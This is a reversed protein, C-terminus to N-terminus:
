LLVVQRTEEELRKRAMEFYEPSLEFGIGERHLRHCAVLTSGSGVFPDLVLDGPNSLARLIYELLGVIKQTPHSTREEKLMGPKNSYRLVSRPFREGSENVFLNPMNGGNKLTPSQNQSRGAKRTYPNGAGRIEDLNFTIDSKRTGKVKYVLIQEIDPAPRTRDKPLASSKQWIWNYRFDFYKSFAAQIEWATAFDCFIALQGQAKLLNSFIWALVHFDPQIDWAQASRLCGYPPDTLILDISHDKAVQWHRLFDGHYITQDQLTAVRM